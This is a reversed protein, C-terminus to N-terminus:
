KNKKKKKRPKISKVPKVPEDVKKQLTPKYKTEKKWGYYESKAQNLVHAIDKVSIKHKYLLDNLAANLRYQVKLEDVLEDWSNLEGTSDVWFDNQKKAM